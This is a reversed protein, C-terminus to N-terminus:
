AAPRFLDQGLGMKIVAGGALAKEPIQTRRFCLGGAAAKRHLFDNRLRRVVGVAIIYASAEVFVRNPKVPAILGGDPSAKQTKGAKVALKDAVGFLRGQDKRKGILIGIDIAAAFFAGFAEIGAFFAADEISIFAIALKVAQGQSLRILIEM